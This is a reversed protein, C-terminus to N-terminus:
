GAQGREGEQDAEVTTSGPQLEPGAEQADSGPQTTGREVRLIERWQATLENDRRLTVRVTRSYDLLKLDLIHVLGCDCCAMAAQEQYPNLEFSGGNYIQRRGRILKLDGLHDPDSVMHPETDAVKPMLPGEHPDFVKWPIGLITSADAVKAICPECLLVVVDNAEIYAFADAGCWHGQCKPKPQEPQISDDVLTM